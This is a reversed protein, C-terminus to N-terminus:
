KKKEKIASIIDVIKGNKNKKVVIKNEDVEKQLLEEIHQQVLKKYEDINKIMLDEIAFIDLKDKKALGIFEKDLNNIKNKM